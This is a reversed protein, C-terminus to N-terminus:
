GGMAVARGTRADLIRFLRQGDVYVNIPQGMRHNPTVNLGGGGAVEIIEPGNEGVLSREGPGLYGGMANTGTSPQHAGGGGGGGNRKGGKKGGKKGGDNDNGFVSAINPLIGDLRNGITELALLSAVADDVAVGIDVMAALIPNRMVAAIRRWRRAVGPRGNEAAKEAKEAAKRARGAIWNEFKSPTFPDKAWDALNQWGSKWPETVSKMSRLMSRTTGRIASAPSGPATPSLSAGAAQATEGIGTWADTLIFALDEADRRFRSMGKDLSGGIGGFDPVLTSALRAADVLNNISETWDDISPIVETRVYTALDRIYPLLEYGVSEVLEDITLQLTKYSGETTSAYAEAQGAVDAQVRALATYGDKADGIAFGARRLATLQGGYAKGVLEAASQLSMNKARAIDMALANLRLAESVDRTRPLLTNLSARVEDDAFALALAKETAEDIEDTYRQWGPVTNRLTTNLQAVSREDEMAAEAADMLVGAVDGIANKAADFVSFGAALGFGQKADRKFDDMTRRIGRVVPSMNDKANFTTTVSSDRGFLSM